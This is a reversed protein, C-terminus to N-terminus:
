PDAYTASRSTTPTVIGSTETPEYGYAVFDCIESDVYDGNENKIVYTISHLNPNNDVIDRMVTGVTNVSFDEKSGSASTANATGIAIYNNNAFTGSSFTIKFKGPNLREVGSINHYSRIVPLNDNGSAEFNVWAKAAGKGNSIRSNDSFVLDGSTLIDQEHGAKSVFKFGINDHGSGNIWNTGVPMNGQLTNRILGADVGSINYYQTHPDGATLNALTNHNIGSDGPYPQIQLLTDNVPANPFLIGSEAIFRGKAGATSDHKARVDNFFPFVVDTDGSAVVKNISFAIDEMNHRVDEASILGANNDAMDTSISTILEGSNLM